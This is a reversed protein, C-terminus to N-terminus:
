SQLHSQQWSQFRDMELPEIANWGFPWGMLYEMNWPTVKGFTQVYNRCCLHKQMSPAAFNAMTTPTHLYGIDQGYTTQVWTQRQFSSTNVDIDLINWIQKQKSSRSKPYMKQLSLHLAYKESLGICKQGYIKEQLIEEEQLRLSHKAPSDALFWTWLEKGHGETLLAYTMGFRSRNYFEITKGKCLFMNVGSMENSLAYQITDSCIAQSFDEVLARSFIFSM